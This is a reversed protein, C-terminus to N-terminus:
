LLVDTIWSVDFEEVRFETVPPYSDIRERSGASVTTQVTVPDFDGPYDAKARESLDLTLIITVSPHQQMKREAYARYPDELPRIIFTINKVEARGPSLPVFARYDGKKPLTINNTTVFEDSDPYPIKDAVDTECSFGEDCSFIDVIGNQDFDVGTMRVIGLRKVGDALYDQAAIVTKRTGSKDILYLEDVEGHEPDDCDAGGNVRRDCFANADDPGFGFVNGRYPNQGTNLDFSPAYIIECDGGPPDDEWLACEVGLHHPNVPDDLPDVFLSDGPDYFRSAYVGHNVGHYADGGNAQVVHISYYEEYDITGKKVENVIQQMLVSADRYIANHVESRKELRVVDVMITAALTGAVGFLAIAILIEILTFGKKM